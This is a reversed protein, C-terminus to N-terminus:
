YGATYGSPYGGGSPGGTDDAPLGVDEPEPPILLADVDGDFRPEHEAVVAAAAAVVQDHSTAFTPDFPTLDPAAGRNWVALRATHAIELDEDQRLSEFRGDVIRLPTVLVDAM